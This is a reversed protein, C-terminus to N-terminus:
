ERFGNIKKPTDHDTFNTEGVCFDCKQRRGHDNSVIHFKEM